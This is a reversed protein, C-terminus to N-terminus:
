RFYKLGWEEDSSDTSDISHESLSDSDSSFDGNAEHGRRKEKRRRRKAKRKMLKELQLESLGAYKLVKERRLKKIAHRYERLCSM